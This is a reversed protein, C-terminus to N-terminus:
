IRYRVLIPSLRGGCRINIIPSPPLGECRYPTPGTPSNPSVKRVRTWIGGDGCFIFISFSM